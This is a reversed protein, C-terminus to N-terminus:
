PVLVSEAVLAPAAYTVAPTASAPTVYEPVPAFQVYEMVVLPAEIVTATVFMPPASEALLPPGLEVVEVVESFFVRRGRATGLVESTRTSQITQIEPIEIIKETTQSQTDRVQLVQVVQAVPVDVMKGVYQILPVLPELLLSIDLAPAAHVAPDLARHEFVPALAVYETQTAVCTM